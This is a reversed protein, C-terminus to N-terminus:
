RNPKSSIDNEIHYSTHLSTEVHATLRIQNIQNFSTKEQKEKRKKNKKESGFCDKFNPDLKLSLDLTQWQKLLSFIM